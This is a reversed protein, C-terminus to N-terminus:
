RARTISMMKLQGFHSCSSSTSLEPAPVSISHGLQESVIMIGSILLGPVRVLPAESLRCPNGVILAGGDAVNFGSLGIAEEAAAFTSRCRFTGTRLVLSLRM